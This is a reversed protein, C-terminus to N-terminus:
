PTQSAPMNLDMEWVVKLQSRAAILPHSKIAERKSLLSGTMGDKGGPVLIWEDGGNAAQVVAAKRHSNM